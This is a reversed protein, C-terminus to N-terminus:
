ATLIGFKQNEFDQANSSVSFIRRGVQAGNLVTEIWSVGVDARFSFRLGDENKMTM